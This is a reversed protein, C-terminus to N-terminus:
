FSDGSAKSKAASQLEAQRYLRAVSCRSTYGLLKAAQAQPTIDTLMEDIVDCRIESLLTRHSTGLQRLSRQLSRTSVGLTGSVHEINPNGDQM